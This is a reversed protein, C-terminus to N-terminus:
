DDSVLRKLERLHPELRYLLELEETWPKSTDRTADVRDRSEYLLSDPIANIAAVLHERHDVIEEFEEIM